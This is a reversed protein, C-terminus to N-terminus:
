LGVEQSARQEVIRKIARLSLPQLPKGLEELDKVPDKPVPLLVLEGPAELLVFKDGYKARVSEQLYIRGKTDCITQKM